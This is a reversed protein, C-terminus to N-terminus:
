NKEKAEEIAVVGLAIADRTHENFPKTGELHPWFDIVASRMQQKTADRDGTFRTKARQAGVMVVPTDAIAASCRIAMGALLSARGMGEVAGVPPMEHAVVLKMGDDLCLVLLDFILISAAKEIEVGRRFDGEYGPVPAKTRIMGAEVVFPYTPQILAWGTNALSQDFALVMTNPDPDFPDRVWPEPTRRDRLADLARIARSAEATV